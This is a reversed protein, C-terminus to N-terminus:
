PVARLNGTDPSRVDTKENDDQGLGAMSRDYCSSPSDNNIIHFCDQKQHFYM